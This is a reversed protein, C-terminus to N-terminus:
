FDVEEEEAEEKEEADDEHLDDMEPDDDPDNKIRGKARFPKDVALGITFVPDSSGSREKKRIFVVVAPEDEQAAQKFVSLAARFWKDRFSAVYLGPKKTRFAGATAGNSKKNKGWAM